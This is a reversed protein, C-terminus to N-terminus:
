DANFVSIVEKLAAKLQQENDGGGSGSSEEEKDEKEDDADDDDDEGEESEEMSDLSDMLKGVGGFLTSSVGAAFGGSLSFVEVGLLLFVVLALLTLIAAFVKLIIGLKTQKRIILARLSIDLMMKNLLLSFGQETILGTGMPDGLLFLEFLAQEHYNLDLVKCATQFEDFAMYTDGSTAVCARFINESSLATDDQTQMNENSPATLSSGAADNIARKATTTTSSSAATENDNEDAHDDDNKDAEGLAFKIIPTLRVILVMVDSVVNADFECVQKAMDEVLKMDTRALGMCFGIIHASLQNNEDGLAKALDKKATETALAEAEQSDNPSVVCMIGALLDALKGKDNPEGSINLLQLLTPIANVLLETNSPADVQSLYIGDLLDLDDPQRYPDNRFNQQGREGDFSWWRKNTPEKSQLMERSHMAVTHLSTSIGKRGKGLASYGNAIVSLMHLMTSQAKMKEGDALKQKQHQFRPSCLMKSLEEFVPYPNERQVLCV